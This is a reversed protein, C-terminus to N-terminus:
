KAGHERLLKVVEDRRRSGVVRLATIGRDDKAEVDAGHELLLRAVEVMGDYSAVHLPTWGHVSQANVNAGYELLLRLVSDDKLQYSRPARHLPIRQGVDEAHIDADYEFFELVMGYDDDVAAFHLPTWKVQDQIDPNAGNRRLLDATQFHGGALAAILPRMYYGGNANVDQPYKVILHKVLDHFGCLAAYYVPAVYRLSVVPTKVTPSFGYFISDSRPGIDIDYITLWMMFHPKGPDFLYEMGKRSHSSVEGFQAHTTWHKAAYGSLPHDESTHGEVNNQIQLLVGLCAQALITHAPELDIHYSSVENSPTALRSSTLFEKVSFHSFQVVRWRGDRVITILSSCASVLALEEDEWRWDPKLLPVGGANDFDVALVEALEEVRLPRIAIVLCQLVRQALRKNPKKIEQLIREYTTDL